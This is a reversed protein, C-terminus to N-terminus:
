DTAFAAEATALSVRNYLLDNVILFRRDGEGFVIGHTKLGKEIPTPSPQPDSIITYRDAKSFAAFTADVAELNVRSM